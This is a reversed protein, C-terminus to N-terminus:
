QKSTHLGSKTAYLKNNNKNFANVNRNTYKSELRNNDVKEM